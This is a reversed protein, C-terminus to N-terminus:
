CFLVVSNNCKILLAALIKSLHLQKNSSIFVTSKKNNIRHRLFESPLM